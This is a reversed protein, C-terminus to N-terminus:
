KLFKKRADEILKTLSEPVDDKLLPEMARKLMGDLEQSEHRDHDEIRRIIHVPQDRFRSPEARGPETDAQERDTDASEISKGNHDKHDNGSSQPEDARGGQSRDDGAPGKGNYRRAVM